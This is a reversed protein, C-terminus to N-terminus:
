AGMKSRSPARNLCRPMSTMGRSSAYNFCFAIVLAFLYIRVPSSYRQRRGGLFTKVITGPWLFLAPLTRLLWGDVEFIEQFFDRLLSFINM